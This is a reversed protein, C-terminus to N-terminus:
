LPFHGDGCSQLPISLVLSMTRKRRVDNFSFDRIGIRFNEVSTILKRKRMTRNSISPYCYQNPSGRIFIASSLKTRNEMTSLYCQHRSHWPLVVEVSLIFNRPSCRLSDIPNHTTEDPVRIQRISGVLRQFIQSYWLWKRGQGFKQQQLCVNKRICNVNSATKRISGPIPPTPQSINQANFSLEHILFPRKENIL